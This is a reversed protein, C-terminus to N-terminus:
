IRSEACNELGGDFIDCYIIMDSWNKQQNKKEPIILYICLERVGSVNAQFLLMGVQVQRSFNLLHCAM